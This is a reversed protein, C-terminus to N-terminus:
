KSAWENPIWVAQGKYDGGTIRVEEAFMTGGIVLIPTRNSVYFIEKALVMQTLGDIDNVAILKGMQDFAKENTAVLVDKDAGTSPSTIYGTEGRKLFSSAQKVQTSTPEDRFEGVIPGIFVMFIFFSAIPHKRLWSRLDSQCHSCKIADNPVQEKCYHCSKTKNM